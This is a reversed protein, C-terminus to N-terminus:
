EEILIVHSKRVKKGAKRAAYQDLISKQSEFSLILLSIQLSLCRALHLSVVLLFFFITTDLKCTDNLPLMLLLVEIIQEIDSELGPLLFSQHLLLANFSSKPSAPM